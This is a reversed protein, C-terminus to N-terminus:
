AKRKVIRTVDVIGLGHAVLTAVTALLLGILGLVIVSGMTSGITAGEGAIGGMIAAGLDIAAEVM